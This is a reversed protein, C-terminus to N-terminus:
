AGSLAEVPAAKKSFRIHDGDRDAMVRDGPSYGGELLTLAMPNQLLMQIVRKLPRAGYVPDYGRDALLERAAPTLELTLHREALLKDLRVLQLDVIHDIDERSLPRFVVIDDVRNLFEPRFHNRLEGRVREEVRAWAEPSAVAGSEVIHHSGLNSTMILVTNRFDVTRGQSDTLRGEDLISLLINFVDPHAKEIEDFLVVSYPRRRVAETLQGGEDYGIYGPPAGIMRAVSHKEMYESMDLRVMAREDDFLFEALARATETKGVGTPGLFIFSGTPRNPDQLGARARRVANAVAALAEPQGVV